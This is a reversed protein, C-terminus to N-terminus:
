SEYIAGTVYNWIKFEFSSGITMISEETRGKKSIYVISSNHENMNKICEDYELDWVKVNSESVTLLIDKEPITYISTVRDILYKSFVYKSWHGEYVVCLKGKAIDILYVNMDKSGLFLMNEDKGIKMSTINEGTFSSLDYKKVFVGNDRRWIRLDRDQSCSIIHNIDALKETV